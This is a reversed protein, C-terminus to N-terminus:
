QPVIYELLELLTTVLASEEPDPVNRWQGQWEELRQNDGTSRLRTALAKLEEHEAPTMRRKFRARHDPHWLGGYKMAPERLYRLGEPLKSWDLMVPPPSYQVERLDFPPIRKRALGEFVYFLMPVRPRHESPQLELPEPLGQEEHSERVACWQRRVKDFAKKHQEALASLAHVHDRRLIERYAAALETLQAPGLEGALRYARDMALGGADETYKEIVDNLYSFEAPLRYPHNEDLPPM